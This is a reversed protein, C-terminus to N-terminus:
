LDRRTVIGARVAAAALAARKENQPLQDLGFRDYLEGLRHKVGDVGIVLAEAIRPNGAPGAGSGDLLPRCLEVLVRRQAPTLAAAPTVATMVPATTVPLTELPDCYALVSHGIGILDGDLLRRRGDIREGHLFTGHRSLGDDVVTWHGGVCELRAHVRSVARDWELCVDSGPQRGIVVQERALEVIVQRGDGDLYVLFPTGRRAAANREALEAATVAHPQLPSAAM